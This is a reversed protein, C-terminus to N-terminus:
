KTTESNDFYSVFAFCICVETKLLEFDIQNFDPLPAYFGKTVKQDFSALLTQLRAVNYLIFAARNITSPKTMQKDLDIPTYHKIKLLEFTVIATGLKQCKDLDVSEKFEGYKSEARKKM